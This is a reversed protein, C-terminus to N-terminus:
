EKVPAYRPLLLSAPQNSVFRWKIRARDALAKDDYAWAARSLVDYLRDDEILTEPHPWSSEVGAYRALLDVSKRLSRGDLSEFNWLDQGVCESLTAVDMLAQAGYMSYFFTRTRAIEHPLTGDKDIQAVIRMKAANEATKEALDVDGVFLAFSLIQQDYWAGHNNNAAQESKGNESTTMWRLYASFWSKLASMESAGLANSPEIVGISDVVRTLRVTDIIGTGRGKTVGPIAQSFELEPNMRTAPNLFWTRVLEAARKAYRPDDTIYYALSLTQVDNTMLSLRSLDYRDTDKEPNPRGDDRVYPLGDETKPNPWWYTGLSMYDHKSGGPPPSPKDTVSYAPNTLAKDAEALLKVARPDGAAAADKAGRLWEARWLFTRRGGPAAAYGIAGQCVSHDAVVEFPPPRPGCGAVPWVLSLALVGSAVRKVLLATM